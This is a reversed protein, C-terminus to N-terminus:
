KGPPRHKSVTLTLGEHINIMTLFANRLHVTQVKSALHECLYHGSCGSVLVTWPNPIFPYHTQESLETFSQPGTPQPSNQTVGESTPPWLTVATSTNSNNNDITYCQSPDYMVLGMKSSVPLLLGGHQRTNCIISYRLPRPHDLFLIWERSYHPPGSYM